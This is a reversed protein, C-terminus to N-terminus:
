RCIKWFAMTITKM